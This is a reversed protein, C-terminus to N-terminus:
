LYLKEQRIIDYVKASLMAEASRRARIARRVDTSSFPFLPAPIPVVNQPLPGEIECGSRPYVLIQYNSVIEQYNAWRDFHNWNDAGIVLAFEENPHQRALERLTVWTYSPRPLSLEFDSVEVGEIGEVAARAMRLRMEEPALEFNVKLPNQPSVMLWIKQAYGHEVIWQALRTHGVHIPNFSGGFIGIM